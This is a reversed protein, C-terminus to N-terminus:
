FPYTVLTPLARAVVFRARLSWTPFGGIVCRTDKLLKPSLAVTTTSLSYALNSLYSSCSCRFAPKSLRANFVRESFSSRPELPDGHMALIRLGPLMLSPSTAVQLRRHKM